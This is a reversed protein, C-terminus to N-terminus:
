PASAAAQIQADTANPNAQMFAAIKDAVSSGASQGAQAVTAITTPSIGANLAAQIDAPPAGANIAAQIAPQQAPPTAALLAAAAKPDKGDDPKAFKGIGFFAAAGAIGAVVLPIM